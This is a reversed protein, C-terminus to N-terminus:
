EEVTAVTAPEPPNPDGCGEKLFDVILPAFHWQDEPLKVSIVVVAADKSWRWEGVVSMRDDHGLVANLPKAFRTARTVAEDRAKEEARTKDAVDMATVVRMIREATDAAVDRWDYCRRTDYRRRYTQWRRGASPDYGPPTVTAWREDRHLEVTFTRGKFEVSIHRADEASMEGEGLEESLMDFAGAFPSVKAM